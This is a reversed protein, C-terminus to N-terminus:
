PCKLEEKRKEYLEQTGDGPVAFDLARSLQRCGGAEEVLQHARQVCVNILAKLLDSDHKNVSFGLRWIACARKEDKHEMYLKGKAYSAAALERQVSRRLDSPHADSWAKLDPDPAIEGGLVLREDLALAVRFPSEAGEPEGKALFSEGEEYMAYAFTVDRRLRDALERVATRESEESVRQLATVAKEKKGYHYLVIADAVEADAIRAKIAETAQRTQKPSPGTRKVIALEPCRWVPAGPEIRERAQLLKLYTPDEPTWCRPDQSPATCLIQGAPPYLDDDAMDHCALEMYKQCRPLAEGFRGQEFSSECDRQALKKVLEVAERVDRAKARPYDVITDSWTPKPAQGQQPARGL